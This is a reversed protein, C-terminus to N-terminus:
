GPPQRGKRLPRGTPGVREGFAGLLNKVAKAPATSTIKGRKSSPPAVATPAVDFVSQLVGPSPSIMHWDFTSLPTMVDPPPKEFM